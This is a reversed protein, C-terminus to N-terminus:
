IVVLNHPLFIHNEDSDKIYVTCVDDNITVEIFSAQQQLLIDSKLQKKPTETLANKNKNIKSNQSRLINPINVDKKSQKVPEEESLPFTIDDKMLLGSLPSDLSTTKTFFCDVGKDMWDEFQNKDMLNAAAYLEEDISSSEGLDVCSLMSDNKYMSM